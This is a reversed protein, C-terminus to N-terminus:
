PDHTPLHKTPALTDGICLSLSTTPPTSSDLTPPLTAIQIWLLDNVARSSRILCITLSRDRPYCRLTFSSHLFFHIRLFVTVGSDLSEPVLGLCSTVFHGTMDLPRQRHAPRHAYAARNYAGPVSGAKSPERQPQGRTRNNVNPKELTVGIQVAKAKIELSKGIWSVSQGQNSETIRTQGSAWAHDTLLQVM